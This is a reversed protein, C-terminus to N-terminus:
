SVRTKVYLGLGIKALEKTKVLERLVRGVQDRDSLDFFDGLVFVSNKSRRIRYKIKSNLTKLIM